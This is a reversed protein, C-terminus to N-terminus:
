GGRWNFRVFIGIMSTQEIGDVRNKMLEDFIVRTEFTMCENEERDSSIENRKRGSANMLEM